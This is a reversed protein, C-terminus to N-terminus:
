CVSSSNFSVAHFSCFIPLPVPPKLIVLVLLSECKWSSYKPELFCKVDLKTPPAFEIMEEMAGKQRTKKPKVWIGGAAHLQKRHM